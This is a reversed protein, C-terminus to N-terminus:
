PHVTGVGPETLGEVGKGLVDELWEGGKAKGIAGGKQMIRMASFYTILEGKLFTTPVESGGRRGMKDTRKAFWAWAFYLPMIEVEGTM